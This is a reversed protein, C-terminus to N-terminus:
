DVLDKENAGTRDDDPLPAFEVVGADLGTFGQLLLTIFHNQHIRIRSRDHRIRLERVPGIHLRNSGLHHLPDNLPLLGVRQQRGEPALRREVASHRQHLRPHQFLVAHAHDPRIRLRDMLPLVPLRKLLRHLLNTQLNGTRAGGVGDLLRAPVRGFDAAKWLHDPRRKRQAPHPAPDGVVPLLKLFDHGAPQVKRRHALHQDLFAQKTPLLVLHLHHPVPRVVADDHTRNFVQIWHPHVRPVRDGHRRDLREGVPLVLDHPVGRKRDDAFDPHLRAARVDLKAHM